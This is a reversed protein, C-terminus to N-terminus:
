WNKELKGKVAAKAKQKKQVNKEENALAQLIREADKKSIKPKQQQEQQKDKNQDNKSQKDKSQQNQQDQKQKDQNQQDKSQQNQKDKQDQNQQDKNQQNKNQQNQQQMQQQLMKKAYELNYKADKDNPSNVLAKKYSDISEQYKKEQLLSNGLNYYAGALDKKDFSKNDVGDFSEKAKDFNGQRYYSTGLNFKAINSNPDIELAKRYQVEADKFKDKKYLSNGKKIFDKSEKAYSMNIFLLIVAAFLFIYKLKNVEKKLNLKM